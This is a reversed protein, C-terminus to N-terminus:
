EADVPFLKTRPRVFSNSHRTSGPKRGYDRQAAAKGSERSGSRAGAVAVSGSVTLYLLSTRGGVVV